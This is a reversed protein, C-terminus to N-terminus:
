QGASRTGHPSGAIPVGFPLPRAAVTFGEAHAFQQLERYVAFSDPYVWFTLTADPDAMRLRRFFASGPRLAEAATEDPLDPDPHLQWESIGIRMVGSGHRLEEVVSLQQREVVYMMTFGGVPGVVGQHKRFKAIWDKQRSIQAKLRDTLEQVPVHAVRGKALHFHVEQGEVVRSVPTLKHRIERAPPRQREEAEVRAQAARHRARAEDLAARVNGLERQKLDLVEADTELDLSIADRRRNSERERSALEEIEAKRSAIETKLMALEDQLEAVLRVLEPSPETPSPPEAPEPEAPEIPAPVPVEAVAPEFDFASPWAPEEDALEVEVSPEAEAVIEDLVEVPATSVRVGAVVILIILIGVINAVIDLFSDSGAAIEDRGTRRSM